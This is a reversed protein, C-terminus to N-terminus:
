KVCAEGPEGLGGWPSFSSMPEWNSSASYWIFEPVRPHPTTIYSVNKNQPTWVEEWPGGLASGPSLSPM